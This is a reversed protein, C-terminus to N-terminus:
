LGYEQILYNTAAYKTMTRMELLEKENLLNNEELTDIHKSIAKLAYSVSRKQKKQPKVEEATAKIEEVPIETQKGM